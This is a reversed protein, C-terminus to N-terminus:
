KQNGIKKCKDSCIIMIKGSGPLDKPESIRIYGIYNEFMLYGPTGTASSLTTGCNKFVKGSSTVLVNKFGIFKELRAPVLAFACVEDSAINFRNKVVSSVRQGPLVIKLDPEKFDIEISLQETLRVDAYQKEQSCNVCNTCILFLILKKLMM